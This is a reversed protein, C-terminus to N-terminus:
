PRESVSEAAAVVMGQDRKGIGVALFLHKELNRQM